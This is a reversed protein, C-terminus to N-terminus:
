TVRLTDLRKSAGAPGIMILTDHPRIVEDGGPNFVTTGDARRIAVVIVQARQRLAAQQLSQGCFPSGEGIAYEDMELEVGKAAVDVFDVVHPRTLINVIRQAGIIQPCVIRDAGARRLKPETTQENARAVITMDQRYGRATLTVYVNDPDNPLTAVLGRARMLGAQLLTDGESADGLVYLLGQEDAEATRDPDNDVIVLDVQNDRLQHAVLKGMRGYGCVIVHGQLQSIRTQLKRRGLVRRLEGTVIMAQLSSLALAAAVMGIGIVAMTWIKGIRGLPLVQEYGVTSITIVTMYLADFFNSRELLMYGFTGGILVSSLLLLAGLLRTRPQM